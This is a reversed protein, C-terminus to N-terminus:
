DGNKSVETLKIIAQLKGYEHETMSFEVVGHKKYIKHLIHKEFFEQIERVCSKLQVNENNLDLLADDRQLDAAKLARHIAKTLYGELLLDYNMTWAENSTQAETILDGIIEEIQKDTLRNLENKIEEKIRESENTPTM